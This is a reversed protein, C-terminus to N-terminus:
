REEFLELPHRFRSGARERGGAAFGREAGLEPSRELPVVLEQDEEVVVARQHREGGRRFQRPGIGPEKVQEAGEGAPGVGLHVDHAAPAALGQLLPDAAQRDPEV